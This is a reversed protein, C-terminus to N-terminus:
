GPVPTSGHETTKAQMHWGLGAFRGIADLEDAGVVPFRHIGSVTGSEPFSMIVPVFGLRLTGFCTAEWTRGSM